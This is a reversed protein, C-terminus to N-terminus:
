PQTLILCSILCIFYRAPLLNDVRLGRCANDFSHNKWYDHVCTLQVMFFASCQFISPKSSHHWKSQLSIFGTLGLSFWDQINMPLVSVLASAGIGKGGSALLQSMLFSRSARFSQLCSFPTVSSLINQHCWQSLPFSNSWARPSPSPCPLRTYQVGHLWLLWVHSLSQM